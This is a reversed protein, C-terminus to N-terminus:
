GGSVPALIEVEDQPDLRHEDSVFENRVCVRSRENNLVSAAGPYQAALRRRLEAVLISTEGGLELESGIEQTLRGYFHVRM